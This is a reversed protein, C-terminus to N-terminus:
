VISWLITAKGNKRFTPIVQERLSFPSCDNCHEKELDMGNQIKNAGEEKQGKEKQCQKLVENM